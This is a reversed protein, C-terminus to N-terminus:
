TGCNSWRRFYLSTILRRPMSARRFMSTLERTRFSPSKKFSVNRSRWRNWCKGWSRRRPRVSQPLSLFDALRVEFRKGSLALSSLISRTLGVSAPSIDIGEYVDFSTSAMARLMHFGHGPGIELYHGGLRTPLGAEFFRSISRHNTWLFTSLALGHMYQRMYDENLYVSDAVERYSSYRYCGHRAFYVQEKMTERIFLNYSAALYGASLGSGDCYKLYADFLDLGSRDTTELSKRLFNRQGPNEALITAVLRAIGAPAVAGKEAVLSHNM